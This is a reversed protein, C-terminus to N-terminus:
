IVEWFWTCSQKNFFSQVHDWNHYSTVRITIKNPWYYFQSCCVNLTDAILCDLKLSSECLVLASFNLEYHAVSLFPGGRVIGRSFSQCAGSFQNLSNWLEELWNNYHIEVALSIDTIVSLKKVCAIVAICKWRIYLPWYVLLQYLVTPAM